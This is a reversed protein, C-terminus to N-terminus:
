ERERWTKQLSYTNNPYYFLECIARRETRVHSCVPIPSCVGRPQAGRNDGVHFEKDPTQRLLVASSPAGGEGVCPARVCDRGKPPSPKVDSAWGAACSSFAPALLVAAGAPGTGAGLSCCYCALQSHPAGQGVGPGLGPGRREGGPLARCRGGGGRPRGQGGTAEAEQPPATCQGGPDGRPRSSSPFGLLPEPVLWAERKGAASGRPHFAGVAGLRCRGPFAARVSPGCGWAGTPPPGDGWLAAVPLRPSFLARRPESWGM